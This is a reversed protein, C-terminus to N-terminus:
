VNHIIYGSSYKGEVPGTSPCADDFIHKDEEEWLKRIYRVRIEHFAKITDIRAQVIAHERNNTYDKDKLDESLKTLKKYKEDEMEELKAFRRTWIAHRRAMCKLYTTDM